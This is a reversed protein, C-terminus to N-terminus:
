RARLIKEATIPTEKIRVGIADAVANAIAPAVLSIGAEGVAKAGFPGPGRKAKVIATRLEPVDRVTPIKYDGLSLTTVRGDETSLHESKTFGLGQVVGGHIHGHFILPNIVKTADIVYHLKEVKVEGTVPDVAVHAVVSQYNHTHPRDPKAHGQACLAASGGLQALSKLDLSNRSGKLHARGQRWQIKSLEVNWHKAARQRLLESLASAARFVALGEVHTGRQARVGQDYPGDTSTVDITVLEPAVGLVEACVQRHMTYAGVGVDRVATKLRLSGDAELSIEAASEGVGIHRDGLALGRGRLVRDASLNPRRKGWGSLAAARKLVDLLHPDDLAEGDPKTDGERLANLLRFELPDIAMSRAIEDIHSEVAFMTQVEGPARFYGSPVHNTYVIMGQMRVNPTRYSGAVMFAGNMRNRPTRAGYAGGDYIVRGDWAWLRGDHKVGTRLTIVAAHRPQGDQLEEQYTELFKVPRGAARALYYTLIIDEAGQKGGFSGGTFVPHVVIMEEPIDAHDALWKRIGFPAQHCQWIEVRGQGDIDVLIARPEIFGHHVTQTRFTNEFIRDAEGFAREVDGKQSQVLSRVNRLGHAKNEGEYRDYEPHLLPADAAMAELPDFVAPLTEYEVEMLDLAQQVLERDTAAVAAVKEGVYRVRDQALVYKDVLTIGELRPAVDQGTIVAKVGPLQRARHTDIKVIRAHPYPSRLFGAWLMGPRSVDASYAASGTVKSAGEVRGLVRGIVSRKM